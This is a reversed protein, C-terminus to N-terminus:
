HSLMKKLAALCLRSGDEPTGKGNEGSGTEPIFHTELSLYESYGDAKLAAFQGPYDIEGEGIVCWKPQLGHDQTEAMRADKLHVHILYPKIAEYGLPFPNEDANFANGPDWVIKFNQSAISSAVRAAQVGTGIFCAHENELGLVIGEKEALKLPAEFSDVIQAEIEPTLPERNWFSFVRLLPTEFSHALRICRQLMELQKDLPRATALHMPGSAEGPNTKTPELDCKFFPTALGVAKMGRAALAKKARFVQEDSLESINTGWLGRLEAGLVGYELMVDLAYEFEQSIEDTIAALQM